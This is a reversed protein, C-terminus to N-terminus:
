YYTWYTWLITVPLSSSNIATFISSISTALQVIFMKFLFGWHNTLTYCIKGPRLRLACSPTSWWRSTFIESKWEVQNISQNNVPYISQNNCQSRQWPPPLHEFEPGFWWNWTIHSRNYMMMWWTLINNDQAPTYYFQWPRKWVGVKTLLHVFIVKKPPLSGPTKAVQTCMRWPWHPLKKSSRLHYEGEEEEILSFRVQINTSVKKRWCYM